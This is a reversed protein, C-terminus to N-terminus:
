GGCSLIERAVLLTSLYECARECNARNTFVYRKRDETTLCHYEDRLHRTLVRGDVKLVAAINSRFREHHSGSTYRQLWYDNHDTYMAIYYAKHSCFGYKFDEVVEFRTKTM